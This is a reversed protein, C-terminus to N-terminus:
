QPGRTMQVPLIQAKLQLAAETGQYIYLTKELRYLYGFDYMQRVTSTLESSHRLVLRKKKKKEHLKWWNRYKSKCKLSKIGNKRWKVM